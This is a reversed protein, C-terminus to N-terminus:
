TRSYCCFALLDLNTLPSRLGENNNLPTAAAGATHSALMSTSPRSMSVPRSGEKPLISGSSNGTHKSRPEEVPRNQSGPCQVTSPCVGREKMTQRQHVTLEELCLGDNTLRKYWPLSLPHSDGITDRSTITGEEVKRAAVTDTGHSFHHSHVAYSYCKHFFQLM